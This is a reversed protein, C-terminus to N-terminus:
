VGRHSLLRLANLVVLVTSGEHLLIALGIGALGSLALAILVAIVGLSIWLNQRIIARTARGLSVAFPLKSLDDAMLAVDASELAVDTGAGGMAIGVTAAALAPADNVGDGVMAVVGHERVLERVIELKTEPLLGSRYDSIGLQRAVAAAVLANDGTLMVQERLGLTRLGELAPRADPRVADAVAIMGIPLGECAILMVTKGQQELEQAKSALDPPLAVDNANFLNRGGVLFTHGDLVATVGLGTLASAESVAPLPLDMSRARRVVAQALPHLSRVEVAAALTLVQDQTWPAEAIVDTVQAEGKTLTGTKDFAIAKLQGLNELHLGGKLLVGSRAAQAIGALIASPTGLALACPSAAVLLTMSRAFANALSVGLLPLVLLVLAAASLVLPVFLRTVRETWRQTPSKQAQAREVLQQVRALTSDRALKEVRLELAGDGNLTGAFVHDQPQKEVPLSEGTVPAQNVLSRGTLVEGDVPIREGPRVIVVEGIQLADVPVIIEAGDRRAIATKPALDALSRIAVRARDLAREELAHGLSFLFLLLAGEAVQGLSASGLAAIVMLLDTDVQRARLKYLAHRLIHYGGLIYAGAYFALSVSFPIALLRESAWGLLLFLGAGMGFLLGRNERLWSRVGEEPVRYGLQAIRRHISRRNVAQSDYEVHMSQAAYNVSVALVGGMRSLSHELVLACDSCDMDEIPIMEHRYRSTIHAGARRAMRQVDEISVLAPDYHVCLLVPEADRQLHARWIGKRRSIAAELRELCVDESGDVEPLLLPVELEVIKEPM